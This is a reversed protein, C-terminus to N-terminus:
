FSIFSVGGDWALLLGVLLVICIPVLIWVIIRGAKYLVDNSATLSLITYTILIGIIIFLILIVTQISILQM